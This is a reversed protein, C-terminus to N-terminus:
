NNSVEGSFNINSASSTLSYPKLRVELLVHHLFSCSQTLATMFRTHNMHILPTLFWKGKVMLPLRSAM